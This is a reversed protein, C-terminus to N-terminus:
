VHLNTNVDAEFCKTSTQRALQVNASAIQGDVTRTVAKLFKCSSCFYGSLDCAESFNQTHGAPWMCLKSVLLSEHVFCVTRFLEVSTKHRWVAVAAGSWREM